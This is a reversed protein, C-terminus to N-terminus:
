NGLKISVLLSAADFGSFTQETQRRVPLGCDTRRLSTGLPLFGTEGERNRPLIRLLRPIKVSSPFGSRSGSCYPNALALKHRRACPNPELSIVLSTCAWNKKGWAPACRGGASHLTLP